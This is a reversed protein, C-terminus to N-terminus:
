KTDKTASDIAVDKLLEFVITVAILISIIIFILVALEHPSPVFEDDKLKRAASIRIYDFFESVSIM